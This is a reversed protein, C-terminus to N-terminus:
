FFTLFPSKPSNQFRLAADIFLETKLSLAYDEM